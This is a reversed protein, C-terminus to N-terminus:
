SFIYNYEFEFKNAYEMVEDETKALSMKCNYEILRGIEIEYNSMFFGRSFTEFFTYEIERALKNFVKLSYDGALIDAIIDDINTNRVIQGREWAQRFEERSM